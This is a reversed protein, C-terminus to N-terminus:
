EEEESEQINQALEYYNYKTSVKYKIKKSAANDNRPLGLALGVSPCGQMKSLYEAEQNLQNNGEDTRVDILYIILLPKRDKVYKFWTISPYTGAFLEGEKDYFEKDFEAEAFAVQEATLGIKGDTPGGLKGRRGLSLKDISPEINCMHREVLRIEKGGITKTKDPKSGDMFAVDWLEVMPDSLGNLYDVIQRVDFRASYKSVTMGNLLNTISSKPIDRLMYHEGSGKVLEMKHGGSVMADAFSEVARFNRVNVRPNANLYPTEFIDGFYDTFEYEDATARM